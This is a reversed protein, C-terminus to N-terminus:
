HSAFAAALEKGPAGLINRTAKVIERAVNPKMRETALIMDGFDNLEIGSDSLKWVKRVSDHAPLFSHRFDEVQLGIIELTEAEYLLAVHDDVYHAVTEVDVPVIRLTLADFDKDYDVIPLIQPKSSAAKLKNTKLQNSPVLHEINM